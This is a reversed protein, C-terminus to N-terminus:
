HKSVFAETCIQCICSKVTIGKREREAQALLRLEAPIKTTMCWCAAPDDGAAVACGNPEGCLPCLAEESTTNECKTNKDKANM